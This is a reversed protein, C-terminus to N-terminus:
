NKKIKLKNGSKVFLYIRMRLLRACCKWVCVRAREVCSMLRYRCEIATSLCKKPQLPAIAAWTHCSLYKNYTSTPWTDTHEISAAYLVNEKEIWVTGDRGDGLKSFESLFFHKRWVKNNQNIRERVLYVQHDVEVWIPQRKLVWLRRSHLRLTFCFSLFMVAYFRFSNFRHVAYVNSQPSSMSIVIGYMSHTPPPYKIKNAMKSNNDDDEDKM